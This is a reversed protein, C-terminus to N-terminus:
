WPCENITLNRKIEKKNADPLKVKIMNSVFNVFLDLKFYSNMFNIKKLNNKSTIWLYSYLLILVLYHM